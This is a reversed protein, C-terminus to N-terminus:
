GPARSWGRCWRGCWPSGRVRTWWRGPLVRRQNTLVKIALRDNSLVKLVCNVLDDAVLHLLEPGVDQHALDSVVVGGPLFEVEPLEEFKLHHFM